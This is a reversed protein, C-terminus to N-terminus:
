LNNLTVKKLYFSDISLNVKVLLYQWSYIFYSASYTFWNSGCRKVVLDFAMFNIQQVANIATILMTIDQLVEVLSEFNFLGLDLM